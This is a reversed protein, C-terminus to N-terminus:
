TISHGTKFSIETTSNRKASPGSKNKFYSTYNTYITHYSTFLTLSTTKTYIKYTEIVELTFLDTSIQPDINTVIIFSLLLNQININKNFHSTTLFSFLVDQFHM